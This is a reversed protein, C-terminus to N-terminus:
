NYQNKLQGWTAAKTPVFLCPNYSQAGGFGVIGAAEPWQLDSQSSNCDVVQFEPVGTSLNLNPTTIWQDPAYAYVYVAELNAQVGSAFTNTQCHTTPAWVMRTGGGADPFKGDQKAYPSPTVTANPYNLDTCIVEQYWQIGGPGQTYDVGFGAGALGPDANGRAIVFWVDCGSGVPWDMVFETCDIAPAATCSLSKATHPVVHNTIACQSQTEAVATGAMFVAVALTAAVILVRKM